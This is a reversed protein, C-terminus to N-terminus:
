LILLFLLLILACFKYDAHWQMVHLYYINVVQILAKTKGLM